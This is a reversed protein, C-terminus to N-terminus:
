KKYMTVIFHFPYDTYELDWTITGDTAKGNTMGTAKDGWGPVYSDIMTINGDADVSITGEMAYDTGYGARQCYWGGLLDDVSYTGDGNNLILIDFSAGYPTEGGYLRYSKEPDTGYLGEVPDNPDTVIVTRSATSYFGDNNVISYSISYVGSKATNVNSSVEVMDTVDEGEMIASYGPDVFESGKDVYLTKDGELSLKAYYTIRTMGETSEDDCSITVFAAFALMAIFLIRNKM